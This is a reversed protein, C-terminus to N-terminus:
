FITVDEKSIFSNFRGKILEFNEYSSFFPTNNLSKRAKEALVENEILTRFFSALLLRTEPSIKILNSSKVRGTLLKGYEFKRPIIM